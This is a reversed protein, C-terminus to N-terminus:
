GAFNLYKRDSKSLVLTQQSARVGARRGVRDAFHGCVNLQSRAGWTKTQLSVEATEAFYERTKAEM